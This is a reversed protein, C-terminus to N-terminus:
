EFGLLDKFMAEVKNLDTRISELSYNDVKNVDVSGFLKLYGLREKFNIRWEEDTVGHNMSYLYAFKVDCRDNYFEKNQNYDKNRIKSVKKQLDKM